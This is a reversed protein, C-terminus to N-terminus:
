VARAVQPNAILVAASAAEPATIRVRMAPWSSADLADLVGQVFAQPDDHHLYHGCGALESFRV